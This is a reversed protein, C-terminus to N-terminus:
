YAVYQQPPLETVTMLRAGANTPVTIATVFLRIQETLIAACIVENTKSYIETSYIRFLPAETEATM